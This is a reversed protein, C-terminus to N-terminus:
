IHCTGQEEDRFQSRPVIRPKLCRIRYGLCFRRSVPPQVVRFTDIKSSVPCHDDDRKRRVKLVRIRGIKGMRTAQSIKNHIPPNIIVVGNLAKEEAALGTVKLPM